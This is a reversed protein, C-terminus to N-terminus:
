PTSNTSFNTSNSRHTKTPRERWWTGVLVRGYRAGYVLNAGKKSRGANRDRMTMPRELVQYGRLIVGMLLESAQYQPQRLTVATAVAATMARFGFSTDTIRRRALLSALAAFLRVGVRRTRDSTEESGLRRSGTVFDAKGARLPDLLVGLEAMDYQGDADTTVVFRAGRAAAIRYGLRLAAGQGRNVPAVCTLVRERGLAVEATGDTAGDVVVLTDVRLDGYRDPIVDLVRGIGDAENYAAILVVVPALPTEGYRARFDELAATDVPDPFPALLGPRPRLTGHGRLATVGLAGAVPLLVLAPLQYRWSFEFAASTLLLTLGAGSALLCAARLGSRRARGVGAAGALGALLAAALVPGPTWGVTLQYTRLVGALEADVSPEAGGFRLATVATRTPTEYNPYTVPFHWREVPVDGPATGRVPAFGKLFDGLVEGAVDLPQHRLVTHSFSRQLDGTTTGPPPQVSQAPSGPEHVYYDVGYREGLPEAPCLLREAPALPLRDCDAVTATRGYLVAGSTETIGVRGTVSWFYLGYAGLVLAIGALLAASRRAVAGLEGRCRWAGGALLLYVLAPVVLTVAVLRVVVMVGLLVGAAASRGPGPAGRGLLLWLVAVLLVLFLTESMVHQEIQVQYADLLVPAAALAAMWRRAGHRLLLLYVAVGVGLGALHQAATVLQLGGVALLPRLVLLEYGIPRLQLPSLEDLNDLYRFSDYYLLAPEYALQALVRLTAGALLLVAFLGHGRRLGGRRVGRWPAATAATAAAPVAPPGTQPRGTTTV